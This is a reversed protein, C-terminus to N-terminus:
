KLFMHAPHRKYEGKGINIAFYKLKKEKDVGLLVVDFKDLDEIELRSTVETYKFLKVDCLKGEVELVPMTEVFMLIRSDPSSTLTERLWQTNKRKDSARDLTKVTFFHVPEQPVNKDVPALLNMVDRHNWFSAIDYATQGANNTADLIARFIIM